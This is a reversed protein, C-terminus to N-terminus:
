TMYVLRTFHSSSFVWGFYPVTYNTLPPKIESNKKSQSLDGLFPALNSDSKNSSIPQLFWLVSFLKVILIHVLRETESKKSRLFFYSM